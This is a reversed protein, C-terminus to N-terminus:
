GLYKISKEKKKKKKRKKKREKKREKKTREKKRKKGSETKTNKSNKLDVVPSGYKAQEAKYGEASV